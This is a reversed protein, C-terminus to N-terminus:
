EEGLKIAQAIKIKSVLVGLVAFGIALVVGMIGYIKLYDSSSMVVAFPPVQQASAYIMQLLPVFLESALGGIVIGLLIAVGSILLQEALLLGILRKVSLGMARFIGFQLVRSKISIIWYILFGIATVLITVIFGLTLAGNTGQLMPDNKITVLQQTTDEFSTFALGKAQVDAYIQEADAGPARKMWLEYPEIRMNLEITRYNAVMFYPDEYPNLGPWYDIFGLVVAQQMNQQAWSYYITDGAQIGMEQYGKSLLVGTPYETMLNLYNYWHTPLLNTRFWAVKGFESPVISMITTGTKNQDGFKVLVEDNRYVKTVAEIGSIGEYQEFPPERYTIAESSQGSAALSDENSEWKAMAVIDCGNEYRIQEEANRNITRATNASFIGTALTLILFIMLFQEQGRSRGVQIFSAYMVPSWIKRGLYFILQIVYPYLRLLLLGAGLVFLSSILFLLPDIPVDGSAAGTLELIQQRNQYAYLGYGSIALLLVDLFYKKWFAKHKRESKRRKHEVISVRCSLLAPVLMTAVSFLAAYLAYLYVKGTLELSLATRQVFELFGNAAGLMRCLGLGILPGILMAIAAVILGEILYSNFVQGPGAGRSRLVAIENKEYDVILQAVMFIYFALMLLIPVQLVLLTTSLQAARTLYQSLLEVTPMSYTIGMEKYPGLERQINQLGIMVDRLNSLTIAHYDLAYNWQVITLLTPEREILEREMLEGNMIFGGATTREGDYWFLESGEKPEVVGVVKVYLPVDLDMQSHSLEYVVDLPVDNDNIAGKFAVVEYVGEADKEAAPLRGQLVNVQEEFGPIGNLKFYVSKPNESRQEKPLGTLYDLWYVCTTDASPLGIAPELRETVQSKLAHYGELREDQNTFRSSLDAKIHLTGPYNGSEEQYSELDKILMRQLVGDTYMPVTSVMAVAITIGILLCLVMWRNNLMKRVVMLFM